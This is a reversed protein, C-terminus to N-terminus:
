TKPCSSLIKWTIGPTSSQASIGDDTKVVTPVRTLINLSCEVSPSNFKPMCWGEYSSVMIYIITFTNICARTLNSGVNEWVDTEEM